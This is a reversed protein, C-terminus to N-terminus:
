GLGSLCPFPRLRHRQESGREASYISTWAPPPSLRPGLREGAEPLLHEQVSIRPSPPWRWGSPLSSLPSSAADGPARRRGGGRGLSVQRHTLCVVGEGGDLHQSCHGTCLPCTLAGRGAGQGGRWPHCERFICTLQAVCAVFREFDM